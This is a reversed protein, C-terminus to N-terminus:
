SIQPELPVLTEHIMSIPGSRGSPPQLSMITQDTMTIQGGAFAAVWNGLPTVLQYNYTISVGIGPAPSSGCRVSADWGVSKPKFALYETPSSGPLAPGSFAPAPVWVNKRGTAAGTTANVEFIDIEQVSTTGTTSNLLGGSALVGEVAGIIEPDVNPSYTTTACSYSGNVLESGVAAGQRTATVMTSNYSIAFGMEVVGLVLLMMVPLIIAFEVVSQGRQADHRSRSTM